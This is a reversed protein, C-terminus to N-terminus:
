DPYIFQGGTDGFVGYVAGIVRIFDDSEKIFTVGIYSFGNFAHFNDTRDIFGPFHDAFERDFFNDKGSGADRVIFYYLKDVTEPAFGGKFNDRFGGKFRGITFQGKQFQTKATFGPKKLTPFVYDSISVM